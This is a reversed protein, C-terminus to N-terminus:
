GPIRTESRSPQPSVSTRETRGESSWTSRRLWDVLAELILIEGDHREKCTRRGNVGGIKVHRTLNDNTSVLRGEDFRLHRTLCQQIYWGKM